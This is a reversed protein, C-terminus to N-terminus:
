LTKNKKRCDRGYKKKSPSPIDKVKYKVILADLMERSLPIRWEAYLPSLDKGSAYDLVALALFVKEHQPPTKMGSRSLDGFIRYFKKMVKWSKERIVKLFLAHYEDSSMTEYKRGSELYREGYPAFYEDNFSVGDLLTKKDVWSKIKIDSKKTCMKEIVYSLKINAQFETFTGNNYWHGIRDDFDHGMEHVWGFDVLDNDFSAVSNRVFSTNLVIPNGAYAFYPNRPCEKLVLLEGNYPSNSTLDEMHKYVRDLYSVVKEPNKVAAWTTEQLEVGVKDAKILKMPSPLVAVPIVVSYETTRGDTLIVKGEVVPDGDKALSESKGPMWTIFSKSAKGSTPVDLNFGVKFSHYKQGGAVWTGTVEKVKVSAADASVFDFIISGWGNNMFGEEPTIRVNVKLPFADKESAYMFRPILVAFLLVLLLRKM